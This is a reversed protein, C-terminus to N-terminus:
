NRNFQREIIFTGKVLEAANQALPIFKTWNYKVDFILKITKFFRNGRAEYRGRFYAATIERALIEILPDPRPDITNIIKILHKESTQSISIIQSEGSNNISITRLLRKKM